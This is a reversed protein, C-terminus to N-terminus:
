KLCNNSSCDWLAHQVGGGKVAGQQLVAPGHQGVVGVQGRGVPEGAIKCEPINRISIKELTEKKM